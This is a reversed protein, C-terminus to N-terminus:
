ETSLFTAMANRFEEFHLVSFGCRLKTGKVTVSLFRRQENSFQRGMDCAYWVSSLGQGWDKSKLLSCPEDNFSEIKSGAINKSMTTPFYYWKIQLGSKSMLSVFKDEYLVIDADTAIEHRGCRNPTACQRSKIPDM